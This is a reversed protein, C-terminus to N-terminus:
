VNNSIAQFTDFNIDYKPYSVIELSTLNELIPRIARIHHKENTVFRACRINKGVYKSLVAHFRNLRESDGCTFNLQKIHPGICKLVRRMQGLPLAFHSWESFNFSKIHNFGSERVLINTKKCVKLLSMLSDVDLYRLVDEFCDENSMFIPPVYGEDEDENM